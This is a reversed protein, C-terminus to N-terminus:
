EEVEWAKKLAPGLASDYAQQWDESTQIVPLEPLIRDPLEPASDTARAHFYEGGGSAPGIVDGATRGIGLLAAHVWRAGLNPCLIEGSAQVPFVDANGGFDIEWGETRFVGDSAQWKEALRPLLWFRVAEHADEPDVLLRIRSDSLGRLQRLTTVVIARYRRAAEEPGHDAAMEPLVLGPLPETIKLTLLRV